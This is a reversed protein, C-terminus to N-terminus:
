DAPRRGGNALLAQLEQPNAPKVLHMDFGAAHAARRDEQRGYGTMAVLYLHPHLARLRRALEYGSMGPLGIDVLAREPAFRQVLQLASPGDHAIAVEHGWARALLALSQAADANDDVILVRQPSGPPSKSSRLSPTQSSHSKAPAIPLRILFETGHGLGASHAEITGGHLTLVRRVLTLGIGLGGGSHALSHDVQAFLDFISELTDPALGIGNDRVSLRAQGQVEALSVEIRGGPDTYKAANELLNTVIQELRIPDGKVCVAAEPLSLTLTHRREDIRARSAEAAHHM